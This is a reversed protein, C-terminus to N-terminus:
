TTMLSPPLASRLVPRRGCNASRRSRERAGDAHLRDEHMAAPLGDRLRHVGGPDFRVEDTPPSVGVLPGEFDHGLGQCSLNAARQDVLDFQLLAFRDSQTIQPPVAQDALLERQSAGRLSATSKPRTPSTTSMSRPGISSAVAAPAM